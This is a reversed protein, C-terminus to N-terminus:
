DKTMKYIQFETSILCCDKMKGPELGQCGGNYKRDKHNKVVGLIEYSHFGGTNTKKHSVENLKIDKLNMWTIAYQLIEQRKLVSYYEM